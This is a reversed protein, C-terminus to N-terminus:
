PEGSCKPLSADMGLEDILKPFLPWEWSGSCSFGVGKRSLPFIHVNSVLAVASIYSLIFVNNGGKSVYDSLSDAEGFSLIKFSVLKQPSLFFFAGLAHGSHRLM